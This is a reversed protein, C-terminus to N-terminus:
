DKNTHFNTHSLIHKLPKIKVTKFEFACFIEGFFHVIIRVAFTIMKNSVVFLIHMKLM